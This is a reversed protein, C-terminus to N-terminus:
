LQATFWDTCRAQVPARTRWTDPKSASEDRRGFGRFFSVYIKPSRWELARGRHDVAYFDETSQVRSWLGLVELWCFGAMLKDNRSPPLAFPPCPFCERWSLYEPCLVFALCAAFVVLALVKREVASM